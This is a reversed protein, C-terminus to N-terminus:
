ATDNTPQRASICTAAWRVNPPPAASSFTTDARAFVLRGRVPITQPAGCRVFDCDIQPMPELDTFNAMFQTVVSADFDERLQDPAEGDTFVRLTVKALNWEVEIARMEPRVEGVLAQQAALLVRTRFESEDIV